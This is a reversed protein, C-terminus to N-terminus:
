PLDANLTFTDLLKINNKACVAAIEMLTQGTEPHVYYPAVDAMPVALHGYKLLDPDPIHRGNLDLVEYNFLVIDLDLTRPANKDEVRTRGLTSEISSLVDQKLAAASMHTRIIAAANYFDPQEALGVPSTLYVPSVKDIQCLTALLAVGQRINKEPEINSGLSIFVRNSEKSIDDRSRYVEVGVSRAFRLAGPKDICVRVAAVRADAMCIAATETALREVLNFSSAEVMAIIRKTITRYNVSDNVADTLGAPRLDTYLTVNILVDQRKIREEANFGILTRLLLEKIHIQDLNQKPLPMM